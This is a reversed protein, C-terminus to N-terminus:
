RGGQGPGPLYMNILTVDDEFTDRGAFDKLSTLLDAILDHGLFGNSNLYQKIRKELRVNGYQETETKNQQEVLGDSFFLIGQGPKLVISEEQFDGGDGLNMIFSGPCQLQVMGNQGYLYPCESFGAASYHFRYTRHNFLGMFLTLFIDAPFNETKFATELAVLCDRPNFLEGPGLTRCYSAVAEKIFVTLMAADLNHGTVDAVYLCIHEPDLSFVNYYDGSVFEAPQFYSSFHVTDQHPFVKPLLAKQIRQATRMNALLRSNYDQLQNFYRKVKLLSKVRALLEVPDVPKNLFEDAGIDLSTLKSERDELATVMIIPIVKTEERNKLRRCVEFGDIGPMIVDLLILDPNNKEVMLLAEEGDRAHEVQSYGARELHSALLIRNSRKDDVVLIRADHAQM